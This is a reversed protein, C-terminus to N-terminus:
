PRIPLVEAIHIFLRLLQLRTSSDEANMIESAVWNSLRHGHNLYSILADEKVESIDKEKKTFVFRLAHRPRIQSYLDWDLNSLQRAMEQPHIDLLTWRGSNVKDPNPLIPHPNPPSFM